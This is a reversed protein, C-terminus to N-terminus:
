VKTLRHQEIQVSVVQYLDMTPCLKIFLEEDLVIQTIIDNYVDGKPIHELQPQKLKIDINEYLINGNKDYFPIQENLKFFDFGSDNQLEVFKFLEAENPLWYQFRYEIPSYTRKVLDDITLKEFTSKSIDNVGIMIQENLYESSDSLKIAISFCNFLNVQCLLGISEVQMLVLYHNNNEFEILHSLPKLVEKDLGSGFFTIEKEM